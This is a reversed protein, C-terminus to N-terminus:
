GGSTMRILIVEDGDEVEHDIPRTEGNVAGIYVQASLGLQNLIEFVTTGPQVSATRPEGGYTRVTVM